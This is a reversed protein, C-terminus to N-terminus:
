VKGNHYEKISKSIRNKLEPSLKVGFRPNAPGEMIAQRGKNKMDNMNDQQTGIFLHKPNVCRPNDCRHLVYLGAPIEGKFFLWSYRHAYIMGGGNSPARRFHGYRGRVTSGTCEWCKRTKRVYRM